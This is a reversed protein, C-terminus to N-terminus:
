YDPWSALEKGMGEEALTREADPDLKACERALRARDLRALKGVPAAEVAQSRNPFQAQRVLSDLRGLLKADLTVAVKTKAM